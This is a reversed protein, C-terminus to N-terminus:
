PPSQAPFDPFKVSVRLIKEQIQTKHYINSYCFGNDLVKYWLTSKLRMIEFVCNQCLILSTLIYTSWKKSKTRRFLEVITPNQQVLVPFKIEVFNDGGHAQMSVTAPQTVSQVSSNFLVHSQSM